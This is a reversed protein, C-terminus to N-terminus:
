KRSKKKSPRPWRVAHASIEQERDEGQGLWEPHAAIHKRFYATLADKGEGIAHLLDTLTGDTGAESVLTGVGREDSRANLKLLISGMRVRHRAVPDTFAGLADNKASTIANYM